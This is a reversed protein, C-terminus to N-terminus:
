WNKNLVFTGGYYKINNDCWEKSPENGAGFVKTLNIAMVNGFYFTGFDAM